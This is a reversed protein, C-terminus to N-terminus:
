IHILSLGQIPVIEYDRIDTKAQTLYRLDVLLYQRKITMLIMSTTGTFGSLYRINIPDTFLFGDIGLHRIQERLDNKIM